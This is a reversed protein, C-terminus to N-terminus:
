ALHSKITSAPFTSSYINKFNKIGFICGLFKWKKKEYQHSRIIYAIPDTWYIGPLTMEM